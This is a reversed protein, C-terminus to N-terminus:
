KRDTNINKENTKRYYKEPITGNMFKAYKEIPPLGLKARRKNLTKFNKVPALVFINGTKSSSVFQTGYIQKKGRQQLWGDTLLAYSEPQFDGKKYAKKVMYYYKDDIITHQLVLFAGDSATYGVKSPTPFGYESIIEKLENERKIRVAREQQLALTDWRRLSAWRFSRYKQDEIGMRFLKVALEKNRSPELEELYLREIRNLIKNWETQNKRLVEFDQDVYVSRYDSPNATDVYYNLYYFASDEMGLLAYNQALVYSNTKILQGTSDLQILNYEISKRYESIKYLSDTKPIIYCCNYYRFRSSQSFIFQGNYYILLILIGWHLKKIKLYKMNELIKLLFCLAHNEFRFDYM